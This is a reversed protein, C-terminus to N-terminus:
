AWRLKGKAQRISWRSQKLSWRSQSLSRQVTQAQRGAMTGDWVAPCVAAEESRDSVSELRNQCGMTKAIGGVGSAADAGVGMLRDAPATCRLDDGTGSDSPSPGATRRQRVVYRDRACGGGTSLATQPRRRM